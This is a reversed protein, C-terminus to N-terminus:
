DDSHRRRLGVFLGVSIMLGAFIAGLPPLLFAFLSVLVTSLESYAGIVVREFGRLSKSLVGILWIQIRHTIGALLIAVGIGPVVYEPSIDSSAVVMLAATAPKVLWGLRMLHTGTAPLKGLVVDIGIIVFLPGLFEWRMM